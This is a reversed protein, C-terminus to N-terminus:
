HEDGELIVFACEAGYEVLDYQDCKHCESKYENNCDFCCDHECIPDVRECKM